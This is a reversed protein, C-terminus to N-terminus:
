CGVFGLPMFALVDVNKKLVPKLQELHAVIQNRSADPGGKPWNYALRPILKFGANRATDFDQQLRNLFAPSFPKLRFEFIHYRMEVLSSGRARFSKLAGAELKPTWAAYNYTGFNNGQECFDWPTEDPYDVYFTPTFGREPNPFNENSPRYTRVVMLSSGLIAAPSETVISPAPTIDSSNSSADRKDCAMVSLSLMITSLILNQM